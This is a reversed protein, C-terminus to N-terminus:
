TYKVCVGSRGRNYMIMVCKAVKTLLNVSINKSFNCDQKGERESEYLITVFECISKNFNGIKYM